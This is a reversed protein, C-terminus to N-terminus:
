AVRTYRTLLWDCAAIEKRVVLRRRGRAQPLEDLLRAKEALLADHLVKRPDFAPQTNM